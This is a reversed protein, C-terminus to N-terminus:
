TRRGTRLELDDAQESYAELVRAASCLLLHQSDSEAYRRNM